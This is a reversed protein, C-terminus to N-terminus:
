PKADETATNDTSADDIHEVAADKPRDDEYGQGEIATAEREAVESPEVVSDQTQEHQAALADIEVVPASKGENPRDSSVPPIEPDHQHEIQSSAVSVNEGEVSGLFEKHSQELNYLAVLVLFLLLVIFVQSALVWTTANTRAFRSRFRDIFTQLSQSPLRATASDLRPLAADPHPKRNGSKHSPEYLPTREAVKWQRAVAEADIDVRHDDKFPQSLNSAGTAKSTDAISRQEAVNAEGEACVNRLKDIVDKVSDRGKAALVKKLEGNAHERLYTTLSEREAQSVFETILLIYRKRGQDAGELPPMLDEVFISGNQGRFGREPVIYNRLKQTATPSVYLDYWGFLNSRLKIM